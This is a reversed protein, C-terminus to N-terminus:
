AQKEEPKEQLMLKLEELKFPKALVGKIGHRNLDSLIPDDFYGSSVMISAKPDLKLLAKIVDKGSLSGPISLDLIVVEFPSGSEMAEKYKSLAETGNSAFEVSEYGLRNLLRGGASRIVAEDDVILM